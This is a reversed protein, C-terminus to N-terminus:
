ENTWGGNPWIIIHAMNRKRVERIVQWTGSGRKQEKRSKPFCYMLTSEEIININRVLPKEVPRVIAGDIWKGQQEKLDCPHVVRPIEYLYATYDLDIDGGVCGGHHLCEIKGHKIHNNLLRCFMVCQAITIGNRTASVGIIM